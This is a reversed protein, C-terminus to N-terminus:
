PYGESVRLQFRDQAQQVQVKEEAREEGMRVQFRDQAQEVQVREQAREDMIVEFRDQADSVEVRESAYEADLRTQFRRDQVAEHRHGADDVPQGGRNVVEHADADGRVNHPESVQHAIVAAGVVAGASDFIPSVTLVVPVVTGDRRLRQTRHSTPNEGAAVRRLVDSEAERLEPPVLVQADVGILDPGHYGYLRAAARNYHAILGSSTIAIIGDDSSGIIADLDVRYAEIKTSDSIGVMLWEVVAWCAADGAFRGGDM